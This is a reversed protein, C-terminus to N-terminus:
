EPLVELLHYDRPPILLTAGVADASTSTEIKRLTENGGPM